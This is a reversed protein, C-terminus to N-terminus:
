YGQHSGANELRRRPISLTRWSGGRLHKSLLVIQHVHGATHALSRTLARSLPMAEGRIAVPRELDGDCLGDLTKLVGGWGANWAAAITLRTDSESREFEEDRRRDPKEGDATFVDTWRSRLNGGVHKMLLAVSNAECDLRAFLADDDLQEIAKDALTRLGVFEDRFARLVPDHSAMM